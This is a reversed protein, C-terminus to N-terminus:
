RAVRDYFQRWPEDLFPGVDMAELEELMQVHVQRVTLETPVSWWLGHLDFLDCRSRVRRDKDASELDLFPLARRATM